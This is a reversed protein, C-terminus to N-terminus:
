VEKLYLAGERGGEGGEGGEGGNLTACRLKSRPRKSSGVKYLPSPPIVLVLDQVPWM